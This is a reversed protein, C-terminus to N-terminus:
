FPPETERTQIDAGGSMVQVSQIESLAKLLISTAVQCWCSLDFVSGIALCLIYRMYICLHAAQIQVLYGVFLSLYCSLIYTASLFLFSLMLDSFILHLFTIRAQMPPFIPDYETQCGVSVFVKPPPPPTIPKPPPSPSSPPQAPPPTPERPPPTPEKPPPPTPERPPPPTPPPPPLPPPTQKVPPPKKPAPPSQPPPLVKRQPAPSEPPLVIQPFSHFLFCCLSSLLCILFLFLPWFSPFFPLLFLIPM